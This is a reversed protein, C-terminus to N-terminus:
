FSPYYIKARPDILWKKKAKIDIRTIAAEIERVTLRRDWIFLNQDTKTTRFSIPEKGKAVLITNGISVIRLSRPDTNDEIFLTRKIEPEYQQEWKTVIDIIDALTEPTPSFVESPQDPHVPKREQTM